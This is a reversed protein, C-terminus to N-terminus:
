HKKDAKKTGDRRARADALRQRAEADKPALECAQELSAVAEADQGSALLLTGLAKHAAVYTPRLRVAARYEAVAEKTQHQKELCTGLRYHTAPDNPKLQLVKRFQEAAASPDGQEQLTTGLSSLAQVSDPKLRLAEQFAKVAADRDGLHLYAHGLLENARVAGAGTKPLENLLRIAEEPDNEALFKSARKFVFKQGRLSQGELRYYPDPWQTAPGLTEAFRQEKDAQHRDGRREYVKALLVHTERVRPAATASRSLYDCSAALDDRDDAIRGMGLLARANEPDQRLVLQFQQEAEDARGARLLTEALLLHAVAVSGDLQVSRQLLTVARDLDFEVEYYGELYPWRPNSPSLQGARAVCAIAERNFNYAGLILGLRGWKSARFPWRKVAARAEAVDRAAGPDDELGAVQPPQPGLVYFWAALGGGALVVALLIGVLLRRPWRRPSRRASSVKDSTTSM